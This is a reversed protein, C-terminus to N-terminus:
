EEWWALFLAILLTVGMVALAGFLLAAWCLVGIWIPSVVWVWSWSIHGTLKLGVLLVVLMSTLSIGGGAVYKGGTDDDKM